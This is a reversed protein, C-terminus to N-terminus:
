VACVDGAREKIRRRNKTENNSQGLGGMIEINSLLLTLAKRLIEAPSETKLTKRIQRYLKRGESCLGDPEAEDVQATLSNAATAKGKSKENPLRLSAIEERFKTSTYNADQNKRQHATELAETPNVTLSAERVYSFGALLMKEILDIGRQPVKKNELMEEILDEGMIGLVILARNHLTKAVVLDGERGDERYNALRALNEIETKFYKKGADSQMSATAATSNSKRVSLIVACGALGQFIWAATETRSITRLLSIGEDQMKDLNCCLMDEFRNYFLDPVAQLINQIGSEEPAPAEADSAVTTLSNDAVGTAPNNSIIIAEITSAVADTQLADTGNQVSSVEATLTQNDLFSDSLSTGEDRGTKNKVNNKQTESFDSKKSNM